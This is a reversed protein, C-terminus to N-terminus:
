AARPDLRRALRESAEAVARFAEASGGADPHAAKAAARYARRLEDPSSPLRDLGLASLDAHRRLTAPPGAATAGWAMRAWAEGASRAAHAFFDANLIALTIWVEAM